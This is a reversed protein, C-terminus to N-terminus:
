PGNNPANIAMKPITPQPTMRKYQRVAPLIRNAKPRAVTTARDTNKAGEQSLTLPTSAATTEELGVAEEEVVAAALAAAATGVGQRGGSRPRQVLGPPPAGATSRQPRQVLGPPPDAPSEMPGASLPPPYASPRASLRVSPRIHRASPRIPPRVPPYATPYASLRVSPRIPRVSPRIHRVSPRITATRSPLCTM